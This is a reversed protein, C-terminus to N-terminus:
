GVAIGISGCCRAALTQRLHCSIQAFWGQCNSAGIQFHAHINWGHHAFPQDTKLRVSYLRGSGMSPASACYNGHATANYDLAAAGCNSFGNSYQDTGQSHMSQSELRGHQVGLSHSTHSGISFNVVFSITPRRRQFPISNALLKKAQEMKQKRLMINLLTAATDVDIRPQPCCGYRQNDRRSYPGLRQRRSHVTLSKFAQSLSLLPNKTSRDRECSVFLWISSGDRSKVPQHLLSIRYLPPKDTAFILGYM